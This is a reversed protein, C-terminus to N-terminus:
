RAYLGIARFRVKRFKNPDLVRRADIMAKVGLRLLLEESIKERFEDWGTAIIALKSGELCEEVSKAPVFDVLRLANDLAKPDYAKVVADLERLRKVLKIAQSERIDDTNEKFALGLVCITKGRLDGVLEEARKVVRPIREENVRMAAEVIVLPEGLQRAFYTLAKTDKPLCSGGYGLGAKLYNLGIRKDLGIGRAVVEVDCGEIKECLNAIENIFSLKVALFANAAYKILEAVEPTTRIVPAKTFSYVEEVVDGANKDRSGVIVRDPHIADYVASGERLFEPNSVVPLGTIEEVKRATGPLVTSKIAIIGGYGIDVLRKVADFLYSLDIEGSIKTPTPVAIFVVECDRLETHDTTFKLRDRNKKLLEDLGPEYIPSVGRSLLEVKQRDVDVGLVIHGQDALVSATVLGVYGLGVVGIRM